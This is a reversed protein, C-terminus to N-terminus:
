AEEHHISNLVISIADFQPDEATYLIHVVKNAGDFLVVHIRHYTRDLGQPTYDVEVQAGVLGYPSTLGSIRSVKANHLGRQASLLVDEIAARGARALRPSLETRIVDVSERRSNQAPTWESSASRPTMTDFHRWGAPIEYTLDGLRAPQTDPAKNTSCGWDLVVALLFVVAIRM